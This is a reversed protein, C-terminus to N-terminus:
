RKDKLMRELRDLDDGQWAAPARAAAPRRTGPKVDGKEIEACTRLGKERWSRLITDMYKWVFKGGTGVMTRDYALELTERPFDLALWEDLFRRETPTPVRGNMQLLSCLAEADAERRDLAALYEEALEVTVIERNCWAFAEKEIAHMTPLRGEGWRRRATEACRNIVLMIVGCPLGLRDYIGFLTRLDAGSLTHGLKAQAEAVLGQFAKDEKSRRVIDEARYEPLEDPPPLPGAASEGLLGAGRLKAAALAVADKTRGLARAAAAADPEGGTRLLYLYLLACDGDSLALLRDADDAALSLGPAAHLRYRKEDM